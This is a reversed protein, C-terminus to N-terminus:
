AIKWRDLTARANGGSINPQITLELASVESLNVPYDETEKTSGQPSFNWQQRAIERATRSGATSWRLTFQQTRESQTESFELRIHHISSPSDFILRLTQEGPVAARWGPGDEKLFLNEVPFAPDESSVEATALAPIDLWAKQPEMGAGTAMVNKRM